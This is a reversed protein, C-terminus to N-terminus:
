FRLAEIAEGDNRAALRDLTRNDITVPVARVSGDGFVFQCVGPHLSGFRWTADSLSRALPRRTGAIRNGGGHDGNYISRDDPSEGFKNDKIHKEGIFITNSLGDKVDAFRLPMGHYWFAGDACDEGTVTGFSSDGTRYRMGPHYDGHGDGTGICCAYDGVGGRVHPGDKDGQWVDGSKSGGKPVGPRRRSPCFYVPIVPIRAVEDQDYYMKNMDWEDFVNQQELMPLLMLAWTERTDRRSYPITEKREHHVQVALGIQKLNNACQARRASERASQVAPLLLAILIGIITIVVLLEVLTFGRARIPRGRAAEV